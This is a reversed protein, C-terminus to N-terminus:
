KDDRQRARGTTEFGSSGSVMRDEQRGDKPRACLQCVTLDRNQILGVIPGWAPPSWSPQAHGTELSPGGPSPPAPPQKGLQHVHGAAEGAGGPRPGPAECRGYPLEEPLFVSAWFNLQLFM